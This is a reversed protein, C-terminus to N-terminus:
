LPANRFFEINFFIALFCSAVGAWIASAQTNRWGFTIAIGFDLVSVCTRSLAAERSILSVFSSRASRSRSNGGGVEFFDNGISQDIDQHVSPKPRLGSM